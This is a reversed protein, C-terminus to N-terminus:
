NKLVDELSQNHIGEQGLISTDEDILTDREQFREVREKIESELVVREGISAVQNILVESIITYCKVVIAEATKTLIKVMKM